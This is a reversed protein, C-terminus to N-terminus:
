VVPQLPPQRPMAGYATPPRRARLERLNSYPAAAATPQNPLLQEYPVSAPTSPLPRVRARDLPSPARGYVNQARSPAAAYASQPRSPAAGYVTQTRGSPTDPEYELTERESASAKKKRARRVILVIVLVIVILLLLSLVGVITPVVWAPLGEPQLVSQLTAAGANNNTNSM